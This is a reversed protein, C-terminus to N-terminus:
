KGTVVLSLQGFQQRVTEIHADIEAHPHFWERREARHAKFKQHMEAELQFTGPHTALVETHPPYAALRQQLDRTFGIKIRDGMRLYYITGPATNRAQREALHREWSSDSEALKQQLMKAQEAEWNRRRRIAALPGDGNVTREQYIHWVDWGHIECLPLPGDQPEMCDKIGCFGNMGERAEIMPQSFAEWTPTDDTM